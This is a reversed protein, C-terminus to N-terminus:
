AKSEIANIMAQVSDLLEAAYFRAEKLYEACEEVTNANEAYRTAAQAQKAYRTADDAGALANEIIADNAQMNVMEEGEEQFWVCASHGLTSKMEIITSYAEQESFGRAIIGSPTWIDFPM